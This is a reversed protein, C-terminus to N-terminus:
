KRVISRGSWPQYRDADSWATRRELRHGLIHLLHPHVALHRCFAAGCQQATRPLLRGANGYIKLSSDGNVDWSFGVRPALQPSTLRLYSCGTGGYNTFQDNRLGLKVLWRDYIRWSDEIYQARQAVRFSGDNHISM